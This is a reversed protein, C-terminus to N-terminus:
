DWSTKGRKWDSFGYASMSKIWEIQNELDDARHQEDEYLSEYLRIEDQLTMENDEFEKIWDKLEYVLDELWKEMDYCDVRENMHMRDTMAYIDKIINDIQM